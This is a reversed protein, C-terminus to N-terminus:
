QQTNKKKIIRRGGLDVRVAVSKGSVVSKREGRYPFRQAQGSPGRRGVGRRPPAGRVGQGAGRRRGRAQSIGREARDAGRPCIRGCLDDDREKTRTGKRDSM